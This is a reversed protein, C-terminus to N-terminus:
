TFLMPNIKVIKSRNEQEIKIYNANELDALLEDLYKGRYPANRNVTTKNLNDGKRILWGLLKEIDSPEDGAMDGYSLWANMIILTWVSVGMM